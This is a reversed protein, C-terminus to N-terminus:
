GAKEEWASIKSGITLPCGIIMIYQPQDHSMKHCIKVINECTGVMDVM